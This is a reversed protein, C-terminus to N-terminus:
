TSHLTCRGHPLTSVSAVRNKENWMLSKFHIQMSQPLTGLTPRQTTRRHFCARHVSGEGSLFDWLADAKGRQSGVLPRARTQPPRRALSSRQSTPSRTREGPIKPASLESLAQFATLAMAMVMLHQCTVTPPTQARKCARRGHRLERKRLDAAASQPRLGILKKGELPHSIADRQKLKHKGTDATFDLQRRFM